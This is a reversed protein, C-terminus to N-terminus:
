MNAATIPPLSWPTSAVKEYAEVNIGLPMGPAAIRTYPGLYRADIVNPSNTAEIIL